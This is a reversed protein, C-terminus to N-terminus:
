GKIGGQTLGDIFRRQLALFLLLVPAIMMVAAASTLAWDRSFRSTFKYYSTAVPFLDPNSIFVTALFFENWVGLAVVLGVTLFGPWSLPLVVKWFVQVENAGDVRAADEFDAPLQVMYSRLLFIAFPANTATYILILGLHSNLLGLGKWLFFLPVLFLQMPVTSIVLLLLMLINGGPLNLRALSYAAMGGLVLVAIVTGIVLTASNRTTLGFDGQEWARPFNSWQIAQPPGLPNQGVEVNSKFANFGLIVIPALSFITLIVLVLYNSFLGARLPRQQAQLQTAM